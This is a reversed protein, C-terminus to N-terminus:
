DHIPEDAKLKYSIIRKRIEKSNQGHSALWQSAAEAISRDLSGRCGTLLIHGREAIKIGLQEIFEKCLEPDVQGDRLSGGVYIKMTHRRTTTNSVPALIDLM